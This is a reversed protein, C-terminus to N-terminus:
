ATQSKRESEDFAEIVDISNIESQALGIWLKDKTMISIGDEEFGSDEEDDIATIEGEIIYGDTCEIKVLDGPNYDWVNIM